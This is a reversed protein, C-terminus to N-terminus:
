TSRVVAMCRRRHGTPERSYQGVAGWARMMIDPAAELPVNAEHRVPLAPFAMALPELLTELRLLMQVAVDGDLFALPRSEQHLEEALWRRIPGM